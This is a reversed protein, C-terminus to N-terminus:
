GATEVAAVAEPVIARRRQQDIWLNSATRFLYAKANRITNSSGHLDGRAIMGFAKLLTEQVLDEADWTNRTLRLCYDHLPTRLGEITDLYAFWHARMARAVEDSLTTGTM